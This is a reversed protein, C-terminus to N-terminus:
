LWRWQIEGDDQSRLAEFRVIVAREHKEEDPEEDSEDIPKFSTKDVWQIDSEFDALGMGMDTLTAEIEITKNTDCYPFDYEPILARNTRGEWNLVTDIADLVATKGSGNPGILLNLGRNPIWDWWDEGCFCRFNRVRLRALKM